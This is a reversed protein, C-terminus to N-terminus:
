LMVAGGRLYKGAEASEPLCLSYLSDARMSLEAQRRIATANEPFAVCLDDIDSPKTLLPPNTKRLASLLERGKANAALVTSYAVGRDLDGWTVGLMAALITRRITSDTYRKTACFRMLEDLNRSERACKCLRHELGNGLGAMELLTNPDTLRFFSLIAREANQLTVPAEKRDLAEKLESYSFSPMYRELASLEEACIAKRIATASAYESGGLMEKSFGDGVRTVAEAVILLGDKRLARLYEVALIDNPLLRLNEGTQSMVRFHEAASGERVDTKKKEKIFDESLSYEALASLESVDGSESGFVLSNVGAMSLLKVGASAFYRASSASFPFPLELVLDAGGLIATKARVFKDLIAAEGRQTFHGSMVCVVADATKKARKILYEHGRHFPNYECIIGSIKM